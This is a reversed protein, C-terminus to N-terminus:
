SKLFGILIFTHLSHTLVMHRGTLAPRFHQEARPQELVLFLRVAVNRDIEISVRLIKGRMVRIVGRQSNMEAFRREKNEALDTSYPIVEWRSQGAVAVGQGGNFCSKKSFQHLSTALVCWRGKQIEGKETICPLEDRLEM